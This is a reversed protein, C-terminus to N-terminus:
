RRKKPRPMAIVECNRANCQSCRLRLAVSSLKTDWGVLQALSHPDITRSHKCKRCRASLVYDGFHDGLRTVEM